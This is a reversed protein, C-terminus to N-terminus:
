GGGAGDASDVLQVRCPEGLDGLAENLGVALHTCYPHREPSGTWLMEAVDDATASCGLALAALWLQQVSLGSQTFAEILSCTPPFV